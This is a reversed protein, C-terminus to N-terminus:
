FEHTELQNTASTDSAPAPPTNETGSNTETDLNAQKIVEDRLGGYLTAKDKPSQFSGELSSIKDVLSVKAPNFQKITAEIAPVVVRPTLINIGSKDIEIGSATYQIGGGIPLPTWEIGLMKKDTEKMKVDISTLINNKDTEIQIDSHEDIHEIELLKAMKKRETPDSMVFTNTGKSPAKDESTSAKKEATIISKEKGILKKVPLSLNAFSSKIDSQSSKLVRNLKKALPTRPITGSGEQQHQTNGVYGGDVQFSMAYSLAADHSGAAQGDKFEDWKIYTSFKGVVTGVPPVYINNPLDSKSAILAEIAAKKVTRQQEPTDTDKIEATEIATVSGVEFSIVNLYNEIMDFALEERQDATSKQLVYEVFGNIYGMQSIYPKLVEDEISYEEDGAVIKGSLAAQMTQNYATEYERKYAQVHENQQLQERKDIKVNEAEAVAKELKGLWQEMSARMQNALQETQAADELLTNAEAVLNSLDKEDAIIGTRTLESLLENAYGVVESPAIELEAAKAADFQQDFQQIFRSTMTKFMTRLQQSKASKAYKDDLEVFESIVQQEFQAVDQEAIKSAISQMEIAKSKLAQEDEQSETDTKKENTTSITQNEVTEFGGLDMVFSPMPTDNLLCYVPIWKAQADEIAKNATESIPSDNPLEMDEPLEAEPNEAKLRERIYVADAYKAAEAEGKQYEAANGAQNITIRDNENGILKKVLINNAVVAEVSKSSKSGTQKNADTTNKFGQVFSQGDVVGQVFGKRGGEDIVTLLDQVEQSTGNHDARVQAVDTQANTTTKFLGLVGNQLTQKEQMLANALETINKQVVRNPALKESKDTKTKATMYSETFGEYVLKYATDWAKKYQERLWAVMQGDDSSEYNKILAQLTADKAAANDASSLKAEPDGSKEFGEKFGKEFMAGRKQAEAFIAQVQKQLEQRQAPSLNKNCEAIYKKGAEFGQQLGDQYAPDDTTKAAASKAAAQQGLLYSEDFGRQFGVEYRNKIQAATGQEGHKFREVQADYETKANGSLKKVEAEPLDTWDPNGFQKQMFFAELAQPKTPADTGFKGKLKTELATEIAEDTKYTARLTGMIRGFAMGNKFSSQNTIDNARQQERWAKLYGDDFGKNYLNEQQPKTSALFKDEESKTKGQALANKLYEAEAIPYIESFTLAKQGKASLAGQEAGKTFFIKLRDKEATEAKKSEAIKENYRKLYVEDFGQQYGREYAKSRAVSKNEKPQVGTEDYVKAAAKGAKNGEQYEKSGILLQPDNAARYTQAYGEDFGKNFLVANKREEETVASATAPNAQREQVSLVYKYYDSDGKTESLASQSVPEPKKASKADESEPESKAPLVAFDESNVFKAGKAVGAKHGDLYAQTKKDAEAQKAEAALKLQNKVQLGQMYGQDFGANYGRQYDNPYLQQAQAANMDAVNNAPQTTPQTIATTNAVPQQETSDTPASKGEGQQQGIKRGVEMGLQYAKDEPTAPATTMLSALSTTEAPKQSDPNKPATTQTTAAKAAPQPTVAQPTAQSTTEQNSNNSSSTEPRIRKQNKAIRNTDEEFVNQVTKLASEFETAKKPVSTKPQVSPTVASKGENEPTNVSRYPEHDEATDVDSANVSRKFLTKVKEILPLRSEKERLGSNNKSM